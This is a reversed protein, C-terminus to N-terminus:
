YYNNPERAEIRKPWEASFMQIIMKHCQRIIITEWKIPKENPQHHMVPLILLKLVELSNYHTWIISFIM